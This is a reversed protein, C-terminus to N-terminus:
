YIGQICTMSSKMQMPGYMRGAVQDPIKMNYAFVPSTRRKAIQIIYIYELIYCLATCKCSWIREVEDNEFTYKDLTHM